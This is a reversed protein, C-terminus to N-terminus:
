RAAASLCPRIVGGMIWSIPYPVNTNKATKEKRDPMQAHSMVGSVFHAPQLQIAARRQCVPAARELLHVLHELRVSSRVVVLHLVLNRPQRNATPLNRSVSLRDSGTPVLVTIHM